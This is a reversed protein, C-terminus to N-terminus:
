LQELISQQVSEELCGESRSDQKPVEVGMHLGVGSLSQGVLFM